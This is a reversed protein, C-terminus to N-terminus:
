LAKVIIDRNKNRISIFNRMDNFQSLGISASIDTPRLNFGSNFFIFRSYLHKNQKSIKKM